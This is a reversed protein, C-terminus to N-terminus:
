SPRNALPFYIRDIVDCAVCAVAELAALLEPYCEARRQQENAAIRAAASKREEEILKKSM